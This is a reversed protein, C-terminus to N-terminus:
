TRPSPTAWSGSRERVGRWATPFPSPTTPCRTGAPTRRSRSGRETSPCSSSSATCSSPEPRTGSCCTTEARAACTADERPRVAGRRNSPGISGDPGAARGPGPRQRTTCRPGPFHADSFEPALVLVNRDAVLDAGTPAITRLTAAWVTCSSSSRSRDVPGRARRVLGPGSPAALPPYGDFIFTGARGPEIEAPRTGPRRGARCATLMSLVAAM